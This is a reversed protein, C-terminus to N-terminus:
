LKQSKQSNYKTKALFRLRIKIYELGHRSNRYVYNDDIINFTNM